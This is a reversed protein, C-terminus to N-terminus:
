ACPGGHVYQIDHAADSNAVTRRIISDHFLPVSRSRRSAPTDCVRFMSLANKARCDKGRESGATARGTRESGSANERVRSM